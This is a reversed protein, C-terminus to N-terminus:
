GENEKPSEDSPADSKESEEKKLKANTEDVTKKIQEVSGTKPHHFQSAYGVVMPSDVTQYDEHDYAFGIVELFRHCPLNDAKLPEFLRVRVRSNFPLQFNM